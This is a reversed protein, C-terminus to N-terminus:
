TLNPKKSTQKRKLSTILVNLRLIKRFLTKKLKKRDFLFITEFDSIIESDDGFRPIWKPFKSNLKIWLLNVAREFNGQIVEV